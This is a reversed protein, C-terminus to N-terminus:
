FAAGSCLRSLKHDIDRSEVVCLVVCHNNTVLKLKSNLKSKSYNTILLIDLSSTQNSGDPRAVYESLVYRPLYTNFVFKDLKLTNM